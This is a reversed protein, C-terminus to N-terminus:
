EEPRVPLDLQCSPGLEVAALREDAVAEFHSRLEPLRSADLQRGVAARHGGFRDLLPSAEAVAAHLDFGSISRGSGRAVTGEVGLVLTPRGTREVIRSAVIGVVGPHWGDGSLVLGRPARREALRADAQAVAAVLISAEVARRDENERDLQRALPVAEAWSEALLLRVSLGADDLRGAANLRPALRFGVQGATLPRHPDLRAVDRLARLGPRKTQDLELLGTRVLQRNVGLLPVVDAITGLAVLDLYAKLNPEPVSVFRGRERLRRRLAMLLFFTVGTAALRKDPFDCDGQLPNLVAVARPLEPSPRHHDVVIVDLGLAQARDVEAVAGIGCDLAVVLKAGAAALKALAEGGLGYGERLRHPVYWDARGGVARLFSVLQVTSTVGDVDYDGYAVVPEGEEIASVLRDVARGMDRFRFPDPLEGLGTALFAEAAAPEGLGRRALLRAVVPHLDLARGVEGCDAEGEGTSWGINWRM